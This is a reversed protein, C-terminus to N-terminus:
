GLDSMNTGLTIDCTFSKGEKKCSDVQNFAKDKKDINVSESKSVSYTSQTLRKM